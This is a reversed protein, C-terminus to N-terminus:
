ISFLETNTEEIDDLKFICHFWGVCPLFIIKAFEILIFIINNQGTDQRQYNNIIQYPQYKLNFIIQIM